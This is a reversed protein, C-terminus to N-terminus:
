FFPNTFFAVLALLVLLAVLLLIIRELLTREKQAAISFVFGIIGSVLIISIILLLIRFFDLRNSKWTLHGYYGVCIAGLVYIIAGILMLMLAPLFLFSPPRSQVVALFIANSGISFLIGVIALIASDVM